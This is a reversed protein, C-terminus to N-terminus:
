RCYRVARPVVTCRVSRAQVVEGDLELAFPCESSLSFASALWSSTKPRGQFRHRRLAVLMRVTELLSLQECVAIGLQGDDPQIPIDYCFSGSVHPNKLLAVNAVALAQEGGDAATMRCSVGRFTLLTRLAAAMGAANASVRHVARLWAPRSNFFANAEATIGVSANNLCFRTDRRGDPQEYELRIGDTLSANDFDIRVPVGRVFAEPRFPKHSDNSSGLGIAGMTVEHAAVPSAMIANLLLNVTGDGGAAILRTEGRGLASAVCHPLEEPSAIEELAFAPLRRLLEGEIRRWRAWGRGHHSQPNLFVRVGGPAQACM